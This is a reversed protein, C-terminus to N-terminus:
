SASERGIDRMLSDNATDMQLVVDRVQRLVEGYTAGGQGVAINLTRLKGRLQGTPDAQDFAELRTLGAAAEATQSLMSRDRGFLRARDEVGPVQEQMARQVRHQFRKLDDRADNLRRHMMKLDQVKGEKERNKRRKETRKAEEEREAQQQETPASSEQEAAIKPDQKPELEPKLEPELEPEPELNHVADPEDQVGADPAQETETNKRALHRQYSMEAAAVAAMLDANGDDPAIEVKEGFDFTRAQKPAAVVSEAAADAVRTQGFPIEQEARLDDLSLEKYLRDRSEPDRRGIKVFGTEPNIGLFTWQKWDVNGSTRVVTVSQGQEFGSDTGPDLNFDKKYLKTFNSYEQLGPFLRGRELEAAEMEALQRRYPTDELKIEPRRTAKLDLEQRRIAQAAELQARDSQQEKTASSEVQPVSGQPKEGRHIKPARYIRPPEQQSSSAQESRYLDGIEDILKGVESVRNQDEASDEAAMRRQIEAIDGKTLTFLEDDRDDGGNDPTIEHSKNPTKFHEPM